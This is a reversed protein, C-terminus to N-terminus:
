IGEISQRRGFIISDAVETIAYRMLELGNFWKKQNGEQSCRSKSANHHLKVCRQYIVRKLLIIALFYSKRLM